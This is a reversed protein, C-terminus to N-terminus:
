IIQWPKNPYVEDQGSLLSPSQRLKRRAGKRHHHNQTKWVASAPCPTGRLQKLLRWYLPLGSTQTGYGGACASVSAAADLAKFVTWPLRMRNLATTTAPTSPVQGGEAATEAQPPEAAVAARNCLRPHSRPLLTAGPATERNQKRCIISFERCLYSGWTCMTRTPPGCRITIFQEKGSVWNM